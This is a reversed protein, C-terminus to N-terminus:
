SLWMLISFLAIPYFTNEKNLLDAAAVFCLIGFVLATITVGLAVIKLIYEREM